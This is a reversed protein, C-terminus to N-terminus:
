QRLGPPLPSRPTVPFAAARDGFLLHLPICPNKNHAAEAATSTPSPASTSAARDRHPLGPRGGTQGLPPLHGVLLAVPMLVRVVMHHALSGEGPMPVHGGGIRGAESFTQHPARCLRTTVWAARDGTLGAVSRLTISKSALQTLSEPIPINEASVSVPAFTEGVGTYAVASGPM